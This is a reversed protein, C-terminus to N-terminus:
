FHKMLGVCLQQAVASQKLPVAYSSQSLRQDWEGSEASLDVSSVKYLFQPRCVSNRFLQQRGTVVQVTKIYQNEM